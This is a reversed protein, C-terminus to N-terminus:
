QHQVEKIHFHDWIEITATPFYNNDRLYLMRFTIFLNMNEWVIVSFNRKSSNQTPNPEKMVQFLDGFAIAATGDDYREGEEFILDCLERVEANIRAAAALGRRESKSGAM